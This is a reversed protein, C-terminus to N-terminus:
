QDGSEQQELPQQPAPQCGQHSLQAELQDIKKVLTAVNIEMRSQLEQHQHRLRFALQRADDLERQLEAFQRRNELGMALLTRKLRGLGALALLNEMLVGVVPLRTLAYIFWQKRLGFPANYKSGEASYRLAAALHSKPVGSRLRQIYVECEGQSPSRGLFLRFGQDVFYEDDLQYLAHLSEVLAGELTGDPDFPPPQTNEREQYRDLQASIQAELDDFDLDPNNRVLLSM